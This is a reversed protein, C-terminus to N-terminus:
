LAVVSRGATTTSLFGKQGLVMWSDHPMFIEFRRMLEIEISLWLDQRLSWRMPKVVIAFELTLSHKLAVTEAM